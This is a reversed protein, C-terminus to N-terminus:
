THYTGFIDNDRKVLSTLKKFSFKHLRICFFILIFFGLIGMENSIDGFFAFTDYVGHAIVPALLILVKNRRSRNVFYYLSYFFGMLIGDAYHGPVALLARAIGISVWDEINGTLYFINEVGAFGLSIFVAYVVGDFHEDFYPNKRLLLWLALLKVSEEPIAAMIFARAAAGLVGQTPGNFFLAGIIGEIIAAPIITLAGYLLAKRLLPTPEPIPDKKYIYFLLLAVPALAVLVILFYNM